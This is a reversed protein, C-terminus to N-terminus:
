RSKDFSARSYIHLLTAFKIADLVCSSSSSSPRFFYKADNLIVIFGDGNEMTEPVLHSSSSSPLPLHSILHHVAQIRKCAVFM